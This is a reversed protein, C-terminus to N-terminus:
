LEVAPRPPMDRSARLQAKLSETDMDAWGGAASLFSALQAPSLSKGSKQEAVNLVIVEDVDRQVVVREGQLVQEYIEATHSLFEQYTIVKGETPM